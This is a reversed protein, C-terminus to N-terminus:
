EKTGGNKNDIEEFVADYNPGIIQIFSSRRMRYYGPEPRSLIGMDVMEDMLLIYADRSLDELCHIDFFRATSIIDGVKYGMWNLKKEDQEYHLLAICRAIMFYREDLDLSLRFKEAISKNLDTSSILEGLLDDKLKFPPNGNAARYYKSYNMTLNEVLKYGFFQLIGPYYNTQTLITELHPYRDIQFGLYRLPRSLLQLADTPSLPKICLPEGIQGFVGNNKTANKARCVNHLGALVFKFNNTTKRKLDILPQLAIYNDDAISELYDDAEDMLLHMSVIKRSNFLRQIDNCFSELSDSKLKPLNTNSVIDNSLKKVLAKESTCNNINSYVAYAKNQPKHCRSATRELLATKGLQRGGYVVCAGNPNILSALEVSRGCFMEDATAGGGCVFPQYSTFPLTCKLLVPLREADQHLALFIALIWDIFIFSNQGSTGHFEEAIQRRKGLDIFGDVLVITLEGLNLRTMTDTLQKAEVSGALIVVNIPSKMLTGFKSIPHPYDPMSKDTSSIKLEFVAERYNNNQVASEARFGFSRFLNVIQGGNTNGGKPWYSILKNCSDQYKPSWGKPYHKECYKTAFKAFAGGKQKKCESYISKFSRDDLFDEFSDPDHLATELEESTAEINGNDFQNIYEETVAFNNENELLRKAATLIAPPERDYSNSEENNAYKDFRAQLQNRLERKRVDAAENIRKYLVALFQGWIGFDMIRYFDPKFQVASGLITEKEDESIRGYTFSLELTSCFKKLRDDASKRADNINKESSAYRIDEENDTFRGILKLQQLNDYIPSSNDFIETKVNDLAKNEENKLSVIHRLVLRWPEYYRIQNWKDDIVPIGNDDLSIVGTYLLETFTRIDRKNGKHFFELLSNVVWALLNKEADSSILLANKATTAAKLIKNRLKRVKDIDSGGVSMSDAYEAWDKMLQIREKFRNDARSRATFDLVYKDKGVAESWFNDIQTDVMNQDISFVGDKETCYYNLCVKVVDLNKVNNEAITTLAQCIDSNNGMSLEYFRSLQRIGSRGQPVKLYATASKQLDAVYKDKSAADGLYALVSDSFGSPLTKEILTLESFLQKVELFSPFEEEFNQLISYCKSKLGSDYARDPRVLAQIYSALRASKLTENDDSYTEELWESTYRLTDLSLRTALLLQEYLKRCKTNNSIGAAAKAMLLAQAVYSDSSFVATNNGSLLSLIIQYFEEDSLAEKRDLLMEYNDTVTREASLPGQTVLTEFRDHTEPVSDQKVQDVTEPSQTVIVVKDMKVQKSEAPKSVLTMPEAKEPKKRVPAPAKSEVGNKRKDGRKPKLINSVPNNVGSLDLKDPKPKPVAPESKATIDPKDTKKKNKNESIMKKDLDDLYYVNTGAPSSNYRKDVVLVNEPKLNLLNFNGSDIYCSIEKGNVCVDIKDFVFLGSLGSAEETPEALFRKFSRLSIEIENNKCYNFYQSYLRNNLLFRNITETFIKEAGVFLPKPTNKYNWKIEGAAKKKLCAETLPSLCYASEGNNSLEYEIVYGNRVLESLALSIDQTAKMRDEGDHDLSIILQFVMDATLVGFEVGFEIILRRIWTSDSSFLNMSNKRTLDKVFQVADARGLNLKSKAYIFKPMEQAPENLDTEPLAKKAALGPKAIAPLQPETGKTNEQKSSEGVSINAASSEVGDALSLSKAESIDDSKVAEEM